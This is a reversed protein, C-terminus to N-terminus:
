DASQSLTTEMKGERKKRRDKLVCSIKWGKKRLCIRLFNKTREKAGIHKYKKLYQQMDPIKRRTHKKPVCSLFLYKENKKHPVQLQNKYKMLKKCYIWNLARESFSWQRDREHETLYKHFFRSRDLCFSTPIIRKKKM